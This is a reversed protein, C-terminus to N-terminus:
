APSYLYGQPAAGSATSNQYLNEWRISQWYGYADGEYVNRLYYVYVAVAALVALALVGRRVRSRDAWGRLDAYRRRLPRPVLRPAADLM